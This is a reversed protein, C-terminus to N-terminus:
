QFPLDLIGNRWASLFSEASVPRKKEDESLASLTLRLLSQSAEWCEPAMTYRDGLLAMAAAGMAYVTLPEGLEAGIRYAEPALYYPSGPLRGRTNIAPMRIFDDMSCLYLRAREFDILIHSDSLGAALYDMHAAEVLLSFFSDLMACRQIFPLSRMRVFSDPLPGIPYADLWPFICLYGSETKEEYLLKPLAPHSIARYLDAGNKLREIAQEASGLYNESLAGAYKVFYRGKKNEIGFCLNGSILHDFVRFVRGFRHLFDFDHPSKLTLLHGDVSVSFSM